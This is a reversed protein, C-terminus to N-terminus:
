LAFCSGLKFDRHGNSTFNYCILRIQGKALDQGLGKLISDSGSRLMAILGQLKM